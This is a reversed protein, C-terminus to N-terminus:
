KVFEIEEFRTENVDLAQETGVTVYRNQNLIDSIIDALQTLDELNTNLIQNREKQRQENTLGSLFM